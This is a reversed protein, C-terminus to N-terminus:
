PNTGIHRWYFLKVWWWTAAIKRQQQQYSDSHSSLRYLFAFLNSKRHHNQNIHDSISTLSLYPCIVFFLKFINLPYKSFCFHFHNYILFTNPYFKLINNIITEFKNTENLRDADVCIKYLDIICVTFKSCNNSPIGVEVRFYIHENQILMICKTTKLERNAIRAIWMYICVRWCMFVHNSLMEICKGNPIEMNKKESFTIQMFFTHMLRLWQTFKFTLLQECKNVLFLIEMRDFCNFIQICVFSYRFRCRSQFIGDAYRSCKSLQSNSTFMSLSFKCSNRYWVNIKSHLTSCVAFIYKGNSISIFNWMKDMSLFTKSLCFYGFCM